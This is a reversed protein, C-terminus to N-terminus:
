KKLKKKKFFFIKQDFVLNSFLSFFDCFFISVLNLSYAPFVVCPVIEFVVEFPKFLSSFSLTLGDCRNGLRLTVCIPVSFEMLYEVFLIEDDADDDDFLEDFEM